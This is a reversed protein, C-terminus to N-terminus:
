SEADGGKRQSRVRHREVAEGRIRRIPQREHEARFPVPEGPMSEGRHVQGHPNRHGAADVREVDRGGAGDTVFFTVTFTGLQDTTPTWRFTSGVFTAGPPLGTAGFTLSANDADTAGAVVVLENNPNVARAGIAGLQPLDNVPTVVFRVTQDSFAGGDDEVRM